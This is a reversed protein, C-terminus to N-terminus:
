VSTLGSPSPSQVALSNSSERHSSAGAAKPEQLAYRRVVQSVGCIQNRRSNVTSVIGSPVKAKRSNQQRSLTRASSIM